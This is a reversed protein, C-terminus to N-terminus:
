FGAAAIVQPILVPDVLEAAAPRLRQAIKDEAGAAIKELRHEIRPNRFRDLM